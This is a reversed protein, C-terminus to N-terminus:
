YLIFGPFILMTKIEEYLEDRSIRHVREDDKEENKTKGKEKKEDAQSPLSASIPLLIIRYDKQGSFKSELDGLIKETLEVEALLNIVTRNGESRDIWSDIIDDENILSEPDNYGNPPLIKILRLAM